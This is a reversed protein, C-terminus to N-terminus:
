RLFRVAEVGTRGEIRLVYVGQDLTPLTLVSRTLTGLRGTTILKGGMDLVSYRADSAHDHFVVLGEDSVHVSSGNPLLGSFHVPVVASLTSRGDIDTQRLRYYSTGPLPREDRDAYYLPS